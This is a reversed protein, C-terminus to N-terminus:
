LFLLGLWGSEPSWEKKWGVSYKSCIMYRTPIALLKSHQHSCSKKRLVEESTLLRNHRRIHLWTLRQPSPLSKASSQSSPLVQGCQSSPFSSRFTGCSLLFRLSVVHFGQVHGLISFQNALLVLHWHSPIM